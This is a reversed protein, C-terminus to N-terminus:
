KVKVTKGKTWGVTSDLRYTHGKDLRITIYKTVGNEYISKKPVIKIKKTGKQLTMFGIYKESTDLDTINIRIVAKKKTLAPTVNYYSSQSIQASLMQAASIKKKVTLTINKTNAKASAIKLVKASRTSVPSNKEEYDYLLNMLYRYRGMQPVVLKTSVKTQTVTGEAVVSKEMLFGNMSVVTAYEQRQDEYKITKQILKYGNATTVKPPVSGALEAAIAQVNVVDATTSLSGAEVVKFKCSITQNKYAITIKTTGKKKATLYGKEDVSAVKKKSSTYTVPYNSATGTTEAAYDNVYAFDGVYFQQGCEIQITSKGADTLYSWNLYATEEAQATIATMPLVSLVAPLVLLIILFVAIRRKIGNKM